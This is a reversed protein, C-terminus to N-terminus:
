SHRASAWSFGKVFTLATDVWLKTVSRGAMFMSTSTAWAQLLAAFIVITNGAFNVGRRGIVDALGLFPAGCVTGITMLANIVGITSGSYGFGFYSHLAPLANIGGIVAWDIGYGAQNCGQVLLIMWLRWGARSGLTLSERSLRHIDEETLRTIVVEETYQTAQKLQDIDDVKHVQEDPNGM